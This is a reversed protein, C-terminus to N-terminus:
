IRLTAAATNRDAGIARGDGLGGQGDNIICTEDTDCQVVAFSFIGKGTAIKQVFKHLIYLPFALFWANGSKEVKLFSDDLKFDCIDYLKLLTDGDIRKPMIGKELKSIYYTSVGVLHALEKQTLGFYRWLFKLSTAIYLIEAMQEM